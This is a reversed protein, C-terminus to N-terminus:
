QWWRTTGDYSVSEWKSETCFCSVFHGVALCLIAQNSYNLYVYTFFLRINRRVCCPEPLLQHSTADSTTLSANFENLRLLDFHHFAAWWASASIQQLASNVLEQSSCLPVVPKMFYTICKVFYTICKL